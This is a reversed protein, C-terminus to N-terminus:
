SGILRKEKQLITYKPLRRSKGDNTTLSSCVYISRAGVNKIYLLGEILSKGELLYDAEINSHALNKCFRFALLDNDLFDELNRLIELRPAVDQFFYSKQYCSRLDCDLIESIHARKTLRSIAYIDKLKHLGALHFFNDEQFKLLINVLEGKKGLVFEYEYNILRLYSNAAETLLDM